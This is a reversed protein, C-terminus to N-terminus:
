VRKRRSKKKTQSDANIVVVSEEESDDTELNQPVKDPFVCYYFFTLLSNLNCVEKKLPIMFQQSKKLNLNM